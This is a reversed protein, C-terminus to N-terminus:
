TKIHKLKDLNKHAINENTYNPTQQKNRNQQFFPYNEGHDQSLHPYDHFNVSNISNFPFKSKQSFLHNQTKIRPSHTTKSLNVYIYNQEAFHNRTFTKRTKLLKTM